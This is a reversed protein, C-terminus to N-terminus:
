TFSACSGVCRRHTHMLLREKIYYVINGEAFTILQVIGPRLFLYNADKPGFTRELFELHFELM